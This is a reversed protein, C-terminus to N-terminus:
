CRRPRRIRIRIRIRSGHGTLWRVGQQQWHVPSSQTPNDAVAVAAASAGVEEPVSEDVVDEESPGAAKQAASLPRRCHIGYQKGEEQRTYYWYGHHRPPSPRSPTHPDTRTPTRAHTYM